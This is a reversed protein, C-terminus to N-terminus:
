MYNGKGTGFFVPAILVSTTADAVRSNVMVNIICTRFVLEEFFPAIVINKAV